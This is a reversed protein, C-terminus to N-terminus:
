SEVRAVLWNSTERQKNRNLNGKKLKQKRGLKESLAASLQAPALTTPQFPM